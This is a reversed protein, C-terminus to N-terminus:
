NWTGLLLMMSDSGPVKILSVAKKYGEKTQVEVDLNLDGLGLLSPDVLQAQLVTSKGAYIQDGFISVDLQRSTQRGAMFRMTEAWIDRYLYYPSDISRMAFDLRWGDDTAWVLTRGEGTNRLCILPYNTSGSMMSVLIEAGPIVNSIRNVSRLNPADSWAKALEVHTWWRSKFIPHSLSQEPLTIKLESMRYSNGASMLSFPLIAALDKNVNNENNFTDPGGLLILGGGRNLVYDSLNVASREPISTLDINGLIIIDYSYLKTDINEWSISEDIKVPLISDLSLGKDRVLNRYLFSYDWTPRSFVMLVKIQEPAVELNFDHRNNNRSFEGSETPIFLSYKLLGERDPILEFQVEKNSSDFIITERRIIEENLTLIWETELDDYGDQGTVLTITV